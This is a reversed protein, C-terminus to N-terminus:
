QFLNIAMIYTRATCAVSSSLKVSSTSTPVWSQHRTTLYMTPGSRCESEFPYPLIAKALPTRMSISSTPQGVSKRGFTTRLVCIGLDRDRLVPQKRRINPGFNEMGAMVLDASTREYCALATALYRPRYRDDADLLFLLDGTVLSMAHNFCSLQGGNEKCVIQVRPDRGFQQALLQQSGDTSGDDIVLIQDFPRTQALASDVAEVVYSRYNFNNVLCTTLM